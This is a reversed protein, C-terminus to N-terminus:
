MHFDGKSSKCMYIATGKGEGLAAQIAAEEGSKALDLHLYKRSLGKSLFSKPLLM